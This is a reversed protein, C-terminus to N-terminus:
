NVVQTYSTLTSYLDFLMKAKNNIDFLMRARALGYEGMRQRVIKDNILKCLANALSFVDRPPILIGTDGNAVLDPIGGVNTAIIALGAAMGELIVNPMGEHYSPLVLIDAERFYRLKEEGFVPSFIKIYNNSTIKQLRAYILPDKQAEAINGVINLSFNDTKQNTLLEIAELLEFIGKERHIHGIYLINIGEKKPTSYTSTERPKFYNLDVGNPIYRVILHPYDELYGLWEKSIAVVANIRQFFFRLFMKSLPSNTFIIEPSCHFTVVVKTGLWHSLIAMISHKIFSVGYATGIDVIDPKCRLYERMFRFINAIANILNKAKVKGRQNFDLKGSSTELPIIDIWKPLDTEMLLENQISIGGWPHGFHSAYLVKIQKNM